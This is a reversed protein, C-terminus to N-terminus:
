LDMSIETYKNKKTLDVELDMEMSTGTGTSMGTGTGMGTGMGVVDDIHGTNEVHDLQKQKDKKIQNMIFCVQAEDLSLILMMIDEYKVKEKTKLFAGHIRYIVGNEKNKNDSLYFPIKNGDKIVFKNRYVNLIFCATNSIEHEYDVFYKKDNGFFSLYEQLIVPDKRLTLYRFFRSNTNGWLNRIHVFLDKRFKQRIYKDNILIVGESGIDKDNKVSHIYNNVEDLTSFNLSKRDSKIIGNGITEEVECQNTLNYTSIHIIGNVPYKIVINNEQHALIFSYCNEKNLVDTINKNELTETFLENFNKTSIWKARQANIMKKTSLIWEDNYCFLRMLTGEYCNEVYLNGNLLENDVTDEELSKNFTICVIKLSNKELIIGNCFRVFPEISNSEHNNIIICLNPYKTDEKVKLKYTESEVFTKLEDHNSVNNENLVSYFKQSNFSM